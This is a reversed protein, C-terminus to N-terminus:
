GCPHIFTSLYLILHHNFTYHKTCYLTYLKLLIFLYLVSLYPVLIHLLIGLQVLTLVSTYLIYSHNHFFNYCNVYNSFCTYCTSLHVFYHRASLNLVLEFSLFISLSSESQQAFNPSVHIIISCSIFM